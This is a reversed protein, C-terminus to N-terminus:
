LFTKGEFSKKKRWVFWELVCNKKSSELVYIIMYM